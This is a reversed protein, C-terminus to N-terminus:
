PATVLYVAAALGLVALFASLVVGLSFERVVLPQQRKLDRVTRVHRGSALLNVTLGILILATGLWLSGGGGHAATAAGRVEATARLTRRHCTVGPSRRHCGPVGRRAAM